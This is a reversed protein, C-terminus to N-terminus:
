GGLEELAKVFTEEDPAMLSFGQVENILFVFKAHREDSFIIRHEGVTDITRLVYQVAVQMADFLEQGPTDFIRTPIEYTVLLNVPDERGKLYINLGVTLPIIPGDENQPRM